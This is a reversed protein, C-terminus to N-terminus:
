CRRPMHLALLTARPSFYRRSLHFCLTLAVLGYLWNGFNLAHFYISSDLSTRPFVLTAVVLARHAIALFPIWFFAVGINQLASAYGTSTIFIPKHWAEFENIFLLDHDFYLSQAYSAYSQMDPGRPESNHFALIGFGVLLVLSIAPIHPRLKSGWDNLLM